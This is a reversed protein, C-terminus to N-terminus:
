EYGINTIKRLAKFFGVTTTIGILMPIGLLGGHRMMRFINVEPETYFQYLDKPNVSVGTYILLLVGFFLTWVYASISFLMLCSFLRVILLNKGTLKFELIKKM